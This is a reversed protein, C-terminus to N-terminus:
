ANAAAAARRAEGKRRQRRSYWFTWLGLAGMTANGVIPGVILFQKVSMTFVLAGSVAAEAVLGVGWVVTMITM